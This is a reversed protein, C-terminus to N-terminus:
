NGEETEISTQRAQRYCVTLEEGPQGGLCGAIRRTAVLNIGSGNIAVFKCNPNASHNVYRGAPTRFSGIRAPCIVEGVQFPRTAFLGVGSIPSRSLRVDWQGDPFSTRDETTMSQFLVDESTVGLESLAASFDVRDVNRELREAEFRADESADLIESEMFTKELLDIDTENTAYINQWVTDELVYGTKQGPEGIFFAPAEIIRSTGNSSFIEVKGKLVINVHPFRQKRGVAFCGAPMHVERIYLGPGFRHIVPAEEQRGQLLGLAIQDPTMWSMGLARAASREPTILGAAKACAIDISAAMEPTLVKGMAETLLDRVTGVIVGTAQIELSTESM